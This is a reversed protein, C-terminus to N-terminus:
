GTASPARDVVYDSIVFCSEDDVSRTSDDLEIATPHGDTPDFTTRVVDAGDRRATRALELLGGLTPILGGDRIQVARQGPEDLGVADSVRGDRVAIRFRGILGQEGCSSQLVFRYATPETWASGIPSPVGPGSSGGCGGVAAALVVSAWSSVRM